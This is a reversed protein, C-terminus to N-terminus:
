TGAHRHRRDHFPFPGTFNIIRKLGRAGAVNTGLTAENLATLQLVPTSCGIGGAELFVASDLINDSADAIAIIVHYTECAMVPSIAQLPVTFGDYQVSQGGINNVYFQSFSNANLTNISVPISTGPILAINQTGVIGPGSIFFAFVDNISGVFEPYEESAFVYKISLTDCLPVIDFEIVCADFTPQGALATLLPYGPTNMVGTAGTQNNPGPATNVNGTSIIVGNSLGINSNAGNFTGMSLTTDCSTSLNTISIGGGFLTQLMQTVSLNHSVTLQAEAPKAQFLAISLLLFFKFFFRPTPSLTIICKM